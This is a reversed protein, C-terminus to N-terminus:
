PFAKNLFYLAVEYGLFCSANAPFARLVVPGLGRYLSRVGEGKVAERVIDRAGRPYKGDPATQLRSKITDPIIAYTWHVIGSIGGALIIPVLNMQSESKKKSIFFKKWWDYVSYYIGSGPIDRILTICMGRYLGKIGSQRVVTRIVDFPGSYQRKMGSATQIQLICKIRDSPVVLAGNCLGSLTGALFHHASTLEKSPDNWLIIGRGVAYAGFSVSALPSVYLLPTSLGKYFGRWSENSLTKRFCDFANKYLPGEGPLPIPMTQMRVKITDLPHGALVLCAGGCGGAFFNKVPSRRGRPESMRVYPDRYHSYYLQM